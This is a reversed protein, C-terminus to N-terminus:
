NFIVGIVKHAKKSSSAQGKVVEVTAASTKEDIVIATDGAKVPVVPNVYLLSGVPVRDTISSNPAYIAYGKPVNALQPPRSTQDQALEFDVSFQGDEDLGGYVPLDAVNVANAGAADKMGSAFTFASRGGALKKIMDRSLLDEARCGLANSLPLLHDTRLRRVGKELKHLESRTFNTVDALESLSMGRSLRIERIRNPLSALDVKTRPKRTRTKAKEATAPVAM